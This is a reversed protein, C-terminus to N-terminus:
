ARIRSWDRVIGRAKRALETTATWNRTQVHERPALAGGLNVAACGSDLYRGTEELAIPGGAVFDINRIVQRISSIYAPGGLFQAPYIKVLDAGLEHATIIETPTAAGAISVLQRSRATEIIRPNLHPSVIISAGAAAAREAEDTTRVTGAAILVGPTTSLERILSEADPTTFTIELIPLGAEIFSRALERATDAHEERVVAILRSERITQLTETAAM